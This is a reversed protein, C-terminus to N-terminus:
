RTILLKDRITKLCRCKQNKAVDESKYGLEDAIEQMSFEDFYYMRLISKCPEPLKEYIAMIIDQLETLDATNDQAGNRAIENLAKEEKARKIIKKLAINRGIGFVFTKLSSGNETLKDTVLIKYLVGHADQYIDIAEASSLRFTNEMWKVFQQRHTFYFKDLPKLDGRRFAAILAIDEEPRRKM